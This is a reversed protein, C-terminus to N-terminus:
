DDIKLDEQVARVGSQSRAVSAAKLKDAMTPVEGSLRVVGDKSDVKVKEFMKKDKFAVEVSKEIDDDKAAVVKKESNPVVQLENKVSKVGKIKKVDAEAVTKAEANPVTGFLTVIGDDTDVNISLAPVRQDGILRLKAWSTIRADETNETVKSGAARTGAKADAVTKDTADAVKNGAARTETKATAVGTTTAAALTKEDATTVESAVRKVGNVKQVLRVAHLHENISDAKGSLLVVGKNVSAITIDGHEKDAKLVKDAASKINDDSQEVVKKDASPVVQLLNKVEKVGEIKKACEGAKQKELDTAVKGHLTVIGENTDVNVASASVGDTTALSLKTKTTIWSDPSDARAPSAAAVGIATIGFFALRRIDNMGYRM